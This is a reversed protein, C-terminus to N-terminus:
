EVAVAAMATAAAHCRGKCIRNPDIAIIIVGKEPWDRKACTTQTGIARELLLAEGALTGLVYDTRHRGETLNDLGIIVEPLDDGPHPRHIALASRCPTSSLARMTRTDQRRVGDM